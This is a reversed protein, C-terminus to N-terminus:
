RAEIGRSSAAPWGSRHLWDFAAFTLYGKGSGMDVLTLPRNAALRADTFLHSLLEVFRNIQRFKAEMGKAVKGDPATVGLAHLWPATAVSVARQKPQDHAKVPAERHQAKGEILRAAKGERFELQMARATTFLDATRFDAGILEDLLLLADDHSFNKAIDNTAHRYTFQLQAAGRLEVPRIFVNKLSRDRGRYGSLTLKVFSGDALAARLNSLLKDKPEVAM